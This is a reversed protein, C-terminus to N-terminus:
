IKNNSSAPIRLPSGPKLVDTPLRNHKKIVSIDINFRRSIKWLNDGEQVIYLREKNSLPSVPAPKAAAATIKIPEPIVQPKEIGRIPRNPATPVFRTLAAQQQFTQPREEGTYQHLRTAAMKWVADSRPSKLLALAYKESDPSKEELQLLMNLVNSDDLKKVAFTFDTKLLLFAANKIGKQIYGLLLQQRRADSLDQLSRQQESFESLTKWDGELLMQLLESKEVRYKSRSFLAEAALFESSLAFADILSPDLRTNQKKLILFLGHPTQPWRETYVFQLFSQWQSDSLGPYITIEALSGNSRRGYVVKRQQQPFQQGALARTLDVHHFAVLSALALDRETYGNEVQQCSSLRIILQDLSLMRLLRIAAANDYEVALPRLQTGELAPKLECYPTPPRENLVWYTMSAILLINLGGSVALAIILRKIQRFHEQELM